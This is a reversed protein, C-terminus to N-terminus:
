GDPGSSQPPRRQQKAAQPVQLYHVLFAGVVGLVIGLAGAILLNQSQSVPLPVEPEVASEWVRISSAQEEKAIRTEKLSRVLGDLNQSLTAIERDFRSMNLLMSAVSNSLKEISMRSETTREELDAIEVGLTAVKSRLTVVKDKLTVYLENRQQEKISLEPLAEVLKDSPNAALLAFIADDSITREITVFEPETAFAKEISELEARAEVLAVRKIQLQNLSDEYDTTLVLLQSEPLTLSGQQEFVFPNEVDAPLRSPLPGLLNQQQYALRKEEEARLAEQTEKYQKAVFEHSRAAETAFLQANQEVFLEEWKDAIHKTLLPDGGRVTMTLLRLSAEAGTDAKSVEPDLMAAVRHVGWLNDTAADRLDLEQIINQVLDNATALTNLTDSSLNTLVIPSLPLEVQQGLLRESVPAVILLRTRAEYVQAEDPSFFAVTAVTAVFVPLVVWWKRIVITIYDRLVFERDTSAGPEQSM